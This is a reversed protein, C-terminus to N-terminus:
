FTSFCRMRHLMQKINYNLTNSQRLWLAYLNEEALDPNNKILWQGCPRYETFVYNISRLSTSYIYRRLKQSQLIIVVKSWGMKERWIRGYVEGREGAFEYRRRENITVAHMSAHTYTYGHINRFIGQETCTANNTHRNWLQHNPMSHDM